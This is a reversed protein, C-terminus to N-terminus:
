KLLMGTDDKQYLRIWDISYPTDFATDDTAFGSGDGHYDYAGLEEFPPQMGIIIHTPDNFAAMSGVIDGSKEYDTTIDYTAYLERDIYMKIETETWEFGYIHFEDCLNESDFIYQQIKNGTGNNYQTHLLTEGNNYWKHINPTNKDTFTLTEIMDIESLTDSLKTGRDKSLQGNSKFWFVSTLGKQYPVRARIEIYGYQYNMTQSTSLDMPADYKFTYSSEGEVRRKVRLNLMGNEVSMVDKTDTAYVLENGTYIKKWKTEDLTTGDFEDGWVLSYGAPANTQGVSFTVEPSYYTNGDSLKVYSRATIERHDNVSIEEILMAFIKEGNEGDAWYDDLNETKKVFLVGDEGAILKSTNTSAKALIGREVVDYETGALVIKDSENTIYSSTVRIEKKNDETNTDIVENETAGCVTSITVADVFVAVNGDTDFRLAPASYYEVPYIDGFSSHKTPIYNISFTIETWDSSLESAPIEVKATNSDGYLFRGYVDGGNGLNIILSGNQEIATDKKVRLSVQYMVHDEFEYGSGIYLFKRAANYDSSLAMHMSKTGTYADTDVIDWVHETETNYYGAYAFTGYDKAGTARLKYEDFGCFAVQNMDSQKVILKSYITENVASFTYSSIEETYDKDNYYKIVGTNATSGNYVEANYSSLDIVDATNGGMGILDSIPASPVGKQITTNGAEDKITVTALRDVVIDDVDLSYKVQRQVGNPVFAMQMVRRIDTGTATTSMTFTYSVTKWESTQELTIGTTGEEPTLAIATNAASWSGASNTGATAGVKVTVAGNSVLAPLRYKFSVRYEAGDVLIYQEARKAYAGAGTPNVVFCYPASSGNNLLKTDPYKLYKNEGETGIEWIGDKYISCNTNSTYYPTYNNFDVEMHQPNFEPKEIKIYDVSLNYTFATDESPRKTTGEVRPEFGLMLSHISTGTYTDPTKFSYTEEVWGDTNGIGLKVNVRDQYNSTNNPTAVGTTAFTFLNLNYGESLDSIKYRVTMNYTTGESLVIHNGDTAFDGTPNAVFIYNTLDGNAGTNAKVYNLYKGGLANADETLSWNGVEKGTYLNVDYMTAYTPSGDPHEEKFKNYSDQTLTCFNYKSFDICYSEADPNTPEASVIPMINCFLSLVLAMILTISLIKKTKM